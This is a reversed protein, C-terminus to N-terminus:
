LSFAVAIEASGRKSRQQQQEIEAAEQAAHETALHKEPDIGGNALTLAQKGATRADALSVVPYRGLTL